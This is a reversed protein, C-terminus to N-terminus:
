DRFKFMGGILFGKGATKIKDLNLIVQNRKFEASFVNIKLWV